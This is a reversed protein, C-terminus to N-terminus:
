HSPYALGRKNRIFTALGGIQLHREHRIALVDHVELQKRVESRERVHELAHEQCDKVTEGIM